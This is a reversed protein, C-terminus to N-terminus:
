RPPIGKKIPDRYRNAIDLNHDFNGVDIKVLQFERKMLRREQRDETCRRALSLGRQTAKARALAHRVDAHASAATDHPLHAAFINVAVLLSLLVLLRKM